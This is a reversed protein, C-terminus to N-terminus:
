VYPLIVDRELCHKSSDNDTTASVLLQNALVVCFSRIAV